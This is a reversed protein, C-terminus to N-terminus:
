RGIGPCGAPSCSTWNQVPRAGIVFPGSGNKTLEWNAFYLAKFQGMANPFITHSRNLRRFGSNLSEIVNTTYMM